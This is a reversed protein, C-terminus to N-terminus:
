EIRNQFTHSTRQKFIHVFEHCKVSEFSGLIINNEM